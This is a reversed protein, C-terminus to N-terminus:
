IHGQAYGHRGCDALAVRLNMLISGYFPYLMVLETRADSIKQLVKRRILEKDEVSDGDKIKDAPKVDEKSNKRM